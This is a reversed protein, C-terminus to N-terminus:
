FEDDEYEEFSGSAKYEEMMQDMDERAKLSGKMGMKQLNQMMEEMQIDKESLRFFHIEQKRQFDPPLYTLGKKCRSTLGRCLKEQM